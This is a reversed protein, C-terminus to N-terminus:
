SPLKVATSVRQSVRKEQPDPTATWIRKLGGINAVLKREESVVHVLSGCFSNDSVSASLSRSKM